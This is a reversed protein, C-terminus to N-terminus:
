NSKLVHLGSENAWGAIRSMDEGEAFYFHNTDDWSEYYACRLEPLVVHFQRHRLTRAGHPTFYASLPPSSTFSRFVLRDRWKRRFVFSLVETEAAIRACFAAHLADRRQQEETPVNELLAYAEERTLWHDFVSVSLMQAITDDSEHVSHLWRFAPELEQQRERSVNLLRRM